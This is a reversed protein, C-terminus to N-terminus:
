TTTASSVLRQTFMRCSTWGGRLENIPKTKQTQWLPLADSRDISKHEKIL